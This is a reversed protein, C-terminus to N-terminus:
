ISGDYDQDAHAVGTGMVLGAATIALAMLTKV